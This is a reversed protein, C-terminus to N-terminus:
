LRQNKALIKLQEKRRNHNRPFPVMNGNLQENDTEAVVKCIGAANELNRCGKGFKEKELKMNKLFVVLTM